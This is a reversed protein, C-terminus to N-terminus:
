MQRLFRLLDRMTMAAAGLGAVLLLPWWAPWWGTAGGTAFALLLLTVALSLYMQRAIPSRVRRFLFVCSVFLGIFEGVVGIWILHIVGVDHMAAYWVLPLGLLRPINGIVGNMTWALALSITIAGGKAIRLGQMVSLLTLLPVIDAYKEGLALHVFPGGVFVVGLVLLGALLLHGQLTAMALRHFADPRDAAASLLPLFFNGASKQLLLAPTLTLTMAMSFLALPEMGLAHGVILREGNFVLFLLVGDAMLPWGFRLSGAMVARDFRLRYPREAVLHSMLTTAAAQVIMSWLMVRYDGFILYLPWVAALAALPALAAAMAAPGFRMSRTMRHLDFHVFGNFVLVVVVLQLAWTQDEVGMFAAFPTALLYLIVANVLGRLVQFAQLAAQFDPDEGRRDQIMQQQLGFASTMEVIALALAFTAAIGYHEVSILRAVLLNRVLLFLANAANGSLILLLTKLM